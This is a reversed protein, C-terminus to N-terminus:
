NMVEELMAKMQPDKGILSNVTKQFFFSKSVVEYGIRMIDSLDLEGEEIQKIVEQRILEKGIGQEQLSAYLCDVFANIHGGIILGVFEIPAQYLANIVEIGKYTLKLEHEKGNVKFKPM